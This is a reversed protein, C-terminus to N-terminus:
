EVSKLASTMDIRNIRHTLLFTATLAFGITIASAIAWSLPTLYPQYAARETSFLGVYKTLFWWGAPIGILWGVLTTFFNERSALSRIESLRFGLVRLTAYDRVREAFSLAGLNYLVVVALVIAFVKILTFVSSLSNVLAQANQRQEDLTLSSLAGPIVVNTDPAQSALFSNPTFDGGALEWAPATFLVGQPESVQTVAVIHTDITTGNPLKVSLPDQVTLGLTRALHESIVAGEDPRLPQGKNDFVQFNTGEDLVTLVHDTGSDPIIRVPTQQIWQGEGVAQEINEKEPQTATPSIRLQADYQYQQTYSREVQKNLTDPMGFGTALLMMCGMTAIIGMAVRVPNGSADRIAWRSGFAVRGWFSTFRELPSRRARGAEPRMGEAPNMRRMPRTATWSALVCVALLLAPLVLNGVTYAPEWSPLSFSNQQTSLVYRSLTPTLVLGVVSGLLVTISGVISYYWGVTRNTCGLAKLTAVEFRQIDTLRRISTFISLLAVLLFLSSFLYSMSKIQEAREYATAVYPHSDRQMYSGYKEGLAQTAKDRLGETEGRVLVTQEIPQTTTLAKFADIDVIAYGFSAPEPSVLGTGTYAIKDPQIITGAVERQVDTKGARVTVIDGVRIDNHQAYENDVWVGKQSTVTKGSVVYPVNLTDSVFPSIRLTGTDANDIHTAQTSSVLAAESVGDIQKVNNLDTTTLGHGAVWADPLANADAFSHLENEIGRWGGGLGSFILVSLCAMFSVAAFQAWYQKLDRRLKRALIGFM